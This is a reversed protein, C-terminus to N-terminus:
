FLGNERFSFYGGETVIIHDILTVDIAKLASNVAKTAEIDHQSPKVTGGPHNHALIIAAAQYKLAVEAVKRPIVASRNVTGKEIECVDLIGNGSDLCVSLIKEIKEGGIATKLYNVASEVSDIKQKSKASSLAYYVAFAKLFNLCVAANLGLEGATMLENIDTDVIQKISKFKKLLQKALLKTDKRPIAFTLALELIEYDALASFGHTQFKEKLRQRHGFYLPTEM